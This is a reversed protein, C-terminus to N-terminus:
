NVDADSLKHSPCLLFYNYELLFEIVPFIIWCFNIYDTAQDTEPLYTITIKKKLSFNLSKEQNTCVHQGM